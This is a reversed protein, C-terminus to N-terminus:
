WIPCYKSAINGNTHAIHSEMLYNSSQNMLSAIATEELTTSVKKAKPTRLQQIMATLIGEKIQHAALVDILAVPMKAYERSNGTM